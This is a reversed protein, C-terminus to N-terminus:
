TEGETGDEQFVWQVLQIDEIPYANDEDEQYYDESNMEENDSEYDPDIEEYSSQSHYDEDDYEGEETAQTSYVPNAPKFGSSLDVQEDILDEDCDERYLETGAQNNETDECIYTKRADQNHRNKYAKEVMVCDVEHKTEYRDLIITKFVEDDWVREAEKFVKEREKRELGSQFLVQNAKCSKSPRHEPDYKRMIQENQALRRFFWKPREKFRRRTADYQRRAQEAM